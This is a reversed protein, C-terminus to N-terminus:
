GTTPGLRGKGQIRWAEYRLGPSLTTMLAAMACRPAALEAIRTGRDPRPIWRFRTGTPTTNPGHQRQLTPEEYLHVFGLCLAAFALLYGLLETQGLLLAQGRDDVRGGPVDSQPRPPLDASWWGSRRHSRRPRASVRSRSGRSRTSLVAAGAAILVGLARSGWFLSDEMRWGTIAWPIVGAVVGPAAILFSRAASPATGKRM